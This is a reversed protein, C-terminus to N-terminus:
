TDSDDDDDVMVLQEGSYRERWKKLEMEYRICKKVLNVYDNKLKRHRYEMKEMDRVLIRNRERLINTEESEM